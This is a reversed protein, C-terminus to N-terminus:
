KLSRTIRKAGQHIAPMLAMNVVQKGTGGVHAASGQSFALLVQGEEERFRATSESYRSQRVSRHVRIVTEIDGADKQFAELALALSKSSQTMKAQAANHQRHALQISEVAQLIDLQITRKLQAYDAEAERLFAMEQHQNARNLGSDFANREALIGVRGDTQWTDNISQGLRGETAVGLRLDANPYQERRGSKM